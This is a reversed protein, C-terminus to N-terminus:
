FLYASEDWLGRMYFQSFLSVSVMVPVKARAMAKTIDTCLYKGSRATMLQFFITMSLKRAVVMM